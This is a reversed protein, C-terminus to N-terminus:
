CFTCITMVSKLEQKIWHQALCFVVRVNYGQSSIKHYAATQFPTLLMWSFQTQKFYQLVKQRTSIHNVKIYQNLKNTERSM